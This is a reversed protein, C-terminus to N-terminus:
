YILKNQLIALFIVSCVLFIYFHWKLETVICTTPGYSLLAHYISPTFILLCASINFESFCKQSMVVLLLNEKIRLFLFLRHLEKIFSIVFLDLPFYKSVKTQVCIPFLYFFLINDFLYVTFFFVFSYLGHGSVSFLRETLTLLSAIFCFFWVLSRSQLYFTLLFLFHINFWSVLNANKQSFDIQLKM